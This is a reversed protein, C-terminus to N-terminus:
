ASWVASSHAAWKIGLSATTSRSGGYVISATPEAESDRCKAGEAHFIMGQDQCVSETCIDGGVSKKGSFNVYQQGTGM